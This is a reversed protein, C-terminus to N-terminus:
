SSIDGSGDLNDGPNYWCVWQRQLEPVRSWVCLELCTSPYFVEFKTSETAHVCDWIMMVLYGVGAMQAFPVRRVQNWRKRETGEPFKANEILMGGVDESKINRQSTVRAKMRMLLVVNQRGQHLSYQWDYDSLLEVLSTTEHEIGEKGKADVCAWVRISADCIRYIKVERRTLALFPACIESLIGFRYPARAVPAAGPVLDIHFEVQRTHPLGPLDEPFVEPFNKVIPVDQLQKKKSKDGTEKITIHALFVHCGKLLYKQTKTHVSIINYDLGENIGDCRQQKPKARCSGSPCLGAVANGNGPEQEKMRPLGEQLPMRDCLLALDQFRQNYAVVDTGKVKLNWMEAEIKNSKIGLDIPRINLTMKKKLDTWTMAYAVDNTVTRVHSNWWTLAIGMLTCTAFKVQNEVTCNSIRFMTEMREFWQTLDVVGETGWLGQPEVSDKTGGVLQRTRRHDAKLLDLDGVSRSDAHRCSLSRPSCRAHGHGFHYLREFVSGSRLADM